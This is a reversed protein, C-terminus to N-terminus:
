DELVPISPGFDLASSKTPSGPFTTARGDDDRLKLANHRILSRIDEPLEAEAPMRINGVLIPILNCDSELAALIERRHTDTPDDIRVLGDNANQLWREGPGASAKEVLPAGPRRWGIRAQM